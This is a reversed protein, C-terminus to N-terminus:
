AALADAVALTRAVLADLDLEDHGALSLGVRGNWPATWPRPIEGARLGFLGGVTAGNCDTDWGASVVEGVAAGFDDPHACLSWVVLALNNLTHVPSMDAYREARERAMAKECIAVLEAPVQPALAHLPKPPDHLLKFLVLRPPIRAGSPVYPM